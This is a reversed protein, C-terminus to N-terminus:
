SAAQQLADGAAHLAEIFRQVAANSSVRQARRTYGVTSFPGVGPLPLVAVLGAAALQAAVSQPMLAAMPRRALLGVNTLISVSRVLRRPMGLGEREFFDRVARYAVADPTPVIWEARRLEAVSVEARGALPHGPSVVVSLGEDYLPVHVLRMGPEVGQLASSANAPLFGVMLDLEGRALAPFLATNPGVRVTVVVDPALERLRSIAEPLLAASATLMAGVTVQGTSGAQWANLEDALDQVGATMARAHRAFLVGFETLQVGRKGRLFLPSGLQSELERLSKSVAPQTMALARSAALISGAEAVAEFIALQMVRLRRALSAASHAPGPRPRGRGTM